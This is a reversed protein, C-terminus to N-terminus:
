IASAPKWTNKEELYKKWSVLYYPSPLHGSKSERTYVASNWIVQVKYEKSDNDADLEVVDNEDDM